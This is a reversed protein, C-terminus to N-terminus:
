YDSWVSSAIPDDNYIEVFKFDKSVKEFHSMDLHNKLRPICPSKMTFLRLEEWHFAEFWRHKHIDKIGGRLNGIRESKDRCLKKILDKANPTVEDPFQIADVGKLINNYIKIPDPSHFIPDGTVLEFILVGLSWFDSVSDHGKNLIMEPSVYEPTGCFTWSKQGPLLHESLGFNTIKVYGKSDLLLNEPKLDRYVIDLSHLYSLAEVVCASIFRAVPDEFKVEVDMLNWVDGGLCAEMMMYLNIDDQFTKIMKAIFPSDLKGLINRDCMVRQRQCNEVILSKRLDKLVFSREKEDQKIIVLNVRGFTAAGLTGVIGLDLLKLDNFENKGSSPLTRREHGRTVQEINAVFQDFSNKDIVKCIVGDRDDAIINATRDGNGTLAKEGFFDGQQLNRVFTERFGEMRTVRVKGSSILFFTEGKAGQRVIYEGFDYKVVEVVDALKGLVEESLNGFIPVTQLFAMYENHKNQAKRTMVDHFVYGEVAWLKCATKTKVTATRECNYLIALEGFMRGSSMESLYRGERTVDLQGSEIVYVMKGLGGEVIVEEGERCALPHMLDVIEDIQSSDFNKMFDDNSIAERLLLRTAEAKPHSLLIDVLNQDGNEIVNRFGHDSIRSRRRRKKISVHKLNPLNFISQYKDIQSRLLQNKNELDLIREERLLIQNKIVEKEMNCLILFSFM